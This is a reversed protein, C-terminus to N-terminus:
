RRNKAQNTFAAFLAKSASSEATREPHWQVGFAWQSSHEIGEIIGDSSTAAINWGEGPAAISQHHFCAVEFPDTGVIGALKGTPTVMSKGETHNEHGVIDPVHQQLSGGFAVALFQSGFCIGLIPKGSPFFWSLLSKEFPYRLPHALRAAHHTEQGYIEGPIDDGGTILWGDALEALQDVEAFPSAVIPQGGAAAIAEQYELTVTTRDRPVTGPRTFDPSILIIPRAM